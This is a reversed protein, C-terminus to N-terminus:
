NQRTAPAQRQKQERHARMRERAQAQEEPSMAEWRARARARAEERQEPSMADWRARAQARAQERQEPTMAEWRKRAEERRAARETPALQERQAEPRAGPAVDRAPQAMAGAGALMGALGLALTLAARRSPRPTMPM